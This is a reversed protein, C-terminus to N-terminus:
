SCAQRAYGVRLPEAGTLAHPLERGSDTLEAFPADDEEIDQEAERELKDDPEHGGQDATGDRDGEDPEEEARNVGDDHVM